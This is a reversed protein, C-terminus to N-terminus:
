NYIATLHIGMNITIVNGPQYYKGDSSNYWSNFDKTIKPLPLIYSSGEETLFDNKNYDIVVDDSTTIMWLREGNSNTMPPLLMEENATNGKIYDRFIDKTLGYTNLYKAEEMRTGLFMYSPILDSFDNYNCLDNM